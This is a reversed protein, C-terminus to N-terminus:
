EKITTKKFFPILMPTNKLYGLYEDGFMFTLMQEERDIRDMVFQLYLYTFVSSIKIGCLFWVLGFSLLINSLYIPHRIYKYLGTKIIKKPPIIRWWSEMSINKQSIIKLILGV